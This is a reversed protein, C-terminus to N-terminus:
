TKQKNIKPNKKAKKKKKYLTERHLKPQGLVQETSCAPELVCSDFPHVVAASVEAEM